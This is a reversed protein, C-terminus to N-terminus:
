TSGSPQTVEPPALEVDSQLKNGDGLGTQGQRQRPEHHPLILGLGPVGSQVLVGVTLPQVGGGGSCHHGSRRAPTEVKLPPRHTGTDIKPIESPESCVASTPYEPEGTSTVGLLDGEM